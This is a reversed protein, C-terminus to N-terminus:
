KFIRGLLKMVGYMHEVGFGMLKRLPSIGSSHYFAKKNERFIAKLNKKCESESLDDTVGYLAMRMLLGMAARALHVRSKNLLEANNSNKYFDVAVTRAEIYDFKKLNLKGNSISLPNDYYYYLERPVYVFRQVRRFLEFNFFIDESTKGLPFRWDGIINRSYLFVCASDVALDFFAHVVEEDEYVRFDIKERDITPMESTTVTKYNIKALQCNNSSLAEYLCSIMDPSIFDDSDIFVIYEGIAIDIGANRASSLGGNTKHIVKIRDDQEKIKDCLEPSSDDSGDDVLIIELNSYTQAVISDVCRQLYKETRFVPVIVSILEKM